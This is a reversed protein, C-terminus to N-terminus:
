NLGKGKEIAKQNPMLFEKQLDNSTWEFSMGAWKLRGMKIFTIIDM